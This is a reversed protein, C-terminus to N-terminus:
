GRGENLVYRDPWALLGGVCYVVSWTHDTSEHGRPTHSQQLDPECMCCSM